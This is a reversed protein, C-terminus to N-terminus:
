IWDKKEMIIGIMKAVGVWHVQVSDSYWIALLFGKKPKM